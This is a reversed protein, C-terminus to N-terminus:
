DFELAHTPRRHPPHPSLVLDASRRKQRWNHLVDVVTVGIPIYLPSLVMLFIIIPPVYELM